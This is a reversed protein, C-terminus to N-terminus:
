TGRSTATPGTQGRPRAGLTSSLRAAHERVITLLARQDWTQMRVTPISVSLAAVCTGRYDYVPAALCQLGPTSEEDDFAFGSERTGQVKFLLANRDSTTKPTLSPLSPSPYRHALEESSLDALLVRGVATAHAPLRGGISSAVRMAQSSDEKAIYVIDTWDLIALHVTEDIRASLSAVVSRAEDALRRQRLFANGIEFTALGVRYSPMSEGTVEVLGTTVLERLLAHTSSRPIGLTRAIRALAIPDDSSALLKLVLAVRHASKVTGGASSPRRGSEDM